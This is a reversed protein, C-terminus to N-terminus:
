RTLRYALYLFVGQFPIRLWLALPHSMGFLPIQNLAMHFHIPLIALFFVVLCWGTIRRLSPKWIGVAAALECVGTFYILPLAAPIYPPWVPLYIEPKLLHVAGAIALVLTLFLDPVLRM